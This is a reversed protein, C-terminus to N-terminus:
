PKEERGAEKKLYAILDARDKAAPVMFGMKQGPILKEPNSLWKDLTKETWVIDSSKVAPSYLYDAHSGAKRGFLGKHAPGVGNYDISHCSMCMTQYLEQGRIADGAAAAAGSFGMLVALGLGLFLHDQKM